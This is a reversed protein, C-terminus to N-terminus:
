DCVWWWFGVSWCVGALRKEDEEVETSTCVRYLKKRGNEQSTDPMSNFKNNKETRTTRQIRFMQSDPNEGGAAAV